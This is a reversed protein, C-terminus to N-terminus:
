GRTPKPKANAFNGIFRLENYLRGAQEEHFTCHDYFYLSNGHTVGLEHCRALIARETDLSYTGVELVLEEVPVIRNDATGYAVFFDSDIFGCGFDRHAPCDSDPSEMGETYRNFAELTQTSTGMWVAIMGRATDDIM